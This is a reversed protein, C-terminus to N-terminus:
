WKGSEDIIWNFLKYFFFFYLKEIGIDLCKVLIVVISGSDLILYILRFSCMGCCVSLFNLFRLDVFIWSLCMVVGSGEIFGFIFLWGVIWLWLILM